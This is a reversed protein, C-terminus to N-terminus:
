WQCSPPSTLIALLRKQRGNCPIIMNREEEWQHTGNLIWGDSKSDQDIRSLNHPLPAGASQGYSWHDSGQLISLELNQENQVPWLILWHIARGNICTHFTPPYQYTSFDRCLDEHRQFGNCLFYFGSLFYHYPLCLNWWINNSSFKRRIRIIHPCFLNKCFFAWWKKIKGHMQWTVRPHPVCM